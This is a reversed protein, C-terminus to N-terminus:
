VRYDALITGTSWSTITTIVAGAITYDVGGPTLRQGNAFVHESGAVPTAALTFTTGSGSVVENDVFSASLVFTGSVNPFTYTKDTSAISATNFIAYLGSTPDYIEVVGNTGAGAKAGPALRVNGGLGNTNGDGGQILAYGGYGASTIGGGQLSIAAGAAGSATSESGAALTTNGGGGATKGDGAFVDISGGQTAGTTADFGRLIGTAAEAGLSVTNVGDYTFNAAGGFTGANNYQISNFPTGPTGGGGSADVLLRHTSPDAWLQVFTGDNASSLASLGQRSNSDIPSTVAM